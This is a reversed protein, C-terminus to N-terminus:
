LPAGIPWVARPFFSELALRHALCTVCLKPLWRKIEATNFNTITIATGAVVCAKARTQASVAHTWRWQHVAAGSALLRLQQATFYMLEGRFLSATGARQTGVTRHLQLQPRLYGRCSRASGPQLHCLALQPDTLFPKLRCLGAVRLHRQLEIHLHLGASDGAGAAGSAKLFRLRKPCLGATRFLMSCLKGALQAPCFRLCCLGPHQITDFQSTWNREMCQQVALKKIAPPGM